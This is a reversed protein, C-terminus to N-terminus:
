RLVTIPRLKICCSVSVERSVLLAKRTKLYYLDALLQSPAMLKNAEINEKLTSIRKAIDEKSSVLSIPFYISELERRLYTQFSFLVAEIDDPDVVTIKDSYIGLLTKYSALEVDIDLLKVGCGKKIRM